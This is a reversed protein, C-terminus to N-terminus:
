VSYTTFIFIINKSENQNKGSFYFRIKLKCKDEDNANINFAPLYTNIDSCTMQQQLTEAIKDILRFREIPKM